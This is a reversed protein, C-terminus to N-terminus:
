QNDLARIVAQSDSGIITPHTFKSNLSSLLHLGMVLGVGKAEYVTHEQDTRLYYRLMKIHQDKLYLIASAGIGGEFGSGDSYVHVPVTFDTLETLALM